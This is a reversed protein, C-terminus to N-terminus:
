AGGAGVFGYEEVVVKDMVAAQMGIFANDEIICAHLLALHGVTVNDGIHTPGNFRSTHIVSGDQINTNKGITVPSVDGRIVSNFWINANEAITVDAAIVVGNALFASKHITPKTDKFTILKYNM